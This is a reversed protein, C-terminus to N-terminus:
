TFRRPDRLPPHFIQTFFQAPEPAEDDVHPLVAQEAYSGPISCYAVADGEKVATVGAGIASVVGAGEVGIIRPLPPGPNVGARSYIDTFNVGAAQIQVLAQGNGPSLDAVEQYELADPGGYQSSQVAKM